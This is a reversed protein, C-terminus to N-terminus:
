SWISVCLVNDHLKGHSLKSQMTDGSNEVLKRCGTPVSCRNIMACTRTLGISHEIEGTGAQRSAEVQSLDWSFNTLSM